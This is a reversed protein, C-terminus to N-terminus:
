FLQRLQALSQLIYDPQINTNTLDDKRFKGTKVLCGKLGSAQAGQVDVVLDDGIMVVQDLSVEWDQVAMEFFEQNPKGVVAADKGTAYELASVFPGLDLVLGNETIWYKNKHMAILQSGNLMKRFLETLLTHTFGDGMDGLIIAEPELHTINFETFCNLIEEDPVVVEISKFKKQRCFNYAATIPSIINDPDVNLGMLKLNHQITKISKRTTNTCFKFLIQKKKLWEILKGVGPILKEKEYVTGDLDILVARIM